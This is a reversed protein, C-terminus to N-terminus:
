KAQPKVQSYKSLTDWFIKETAKFKEFITGLHKLMEKVQQPDANEQRTVSNLSSSVAQLSGAALAFSRAADYLNDTELEEESPTHLLRWPSRRIEVTALKLQEASIQANALTRELVPKQGTVFNKLQSSGEKLNAMAQKVNDMAQELQKLTRTKLTGTLEKADTTAIKINALADKITQSESQILADLKAVARNAHTITDSIKTNWQKSNSALESTITNINNLSIDLQTLSEKAKLAVSSAQDMVTQAKASIMPLDKRITGTLAATNEIIQQIELRQKAEIGMNVAMDRILPSGAISGPIADQPGPYLELLQKPSLDARQQNLALSWDPVVASPMANQPAYKQGDLTGGVSAINLRTGSGLPPVVLEIQADWYISINDPIQLTVKLGVIQGEDGNAKKYHPKISQISGIPQDGLTVSAGPKLGQVGDSLQYFVHVQKTSQTLSKFDALTLIVVLTLIIGALVFLGAKVHDKKHAM